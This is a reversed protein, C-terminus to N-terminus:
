AYRKGHLQEVNEAPISQLNGDSEVFDLLRSLAANQIQRVRERTVGIANGVEELTAREKGNLGFRLVVVERERDSLESLWCLISSRDREDQLREAPGASEDVILDMLSQESEASFPVDLSATKNDLSMLHKVDEPQEQLIEAVDDPTVEKEQAQSLRRATRHYRYIMKVVHIPLRITRSQSMIARDITQRIWWTAYTSFRFGREPDFKEVARILGLNGEQILDLLPLGRNVYRKAIKVVLRLNSEIMRQRAHHDGKQVLRGYYVEDEATLLPHRGIERLYISAADPESGRGADGDDTDQGKAASEAGVDPDIVEQPEKVGQEINAGM